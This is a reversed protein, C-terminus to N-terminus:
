LTLRLALSLERLLNLLLHWQRLPVVASVVDTYTARYDFIAPQEQHPPCRAPSPAVPLHGAAEDLGLLRNLVGHEAFYLLLGINFRFYNANKAEAVAVVRVHAVAHVHHQQQM